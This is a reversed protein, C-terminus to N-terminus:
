EDAADSTYLLCSLEQANSVFGPSAAVMLAACWGAVPQKKGSSFCFVAVAGLGCAVSFLRLLTFSETIGLGGRLLAFYLPPHDYNRAMAIFDQASAQAYSGAEDIWLSKDIGALRLGAAVVLIVAPVAWKLWAASLHRESVPKVTAPAIFGTM